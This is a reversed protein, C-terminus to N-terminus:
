VFVYVVTSPSQLNFEMIYPAVGLTFKPENGFYYDNIAGNSGFMRASDTSATDHTM